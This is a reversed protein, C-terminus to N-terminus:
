KTHLCVFGMSGCWSLHSLYVSLCVKPLGKNQLDKSGCLHRSFNHTKYYISLIFYVIYTGINNHFKQDFPKFNILLHYAIKILINYADQGHLHSIVSM